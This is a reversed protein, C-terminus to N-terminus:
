QIDCYNGFLYFCQYVKGPRKTNEFTLIEEPETEPSGHYRLIAAQFVKKPHCDMLGHLRVWYSSIDQGANVIFDYREGAHIVVSDVEFFSVFSANIYRCV